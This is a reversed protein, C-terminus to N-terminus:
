KLSKENNQNFITTGATATTQKKMYKSLDDQIKLISKKESESLKQEESIKIMLNLLQSTMGLMTESNILMRREHPNSEIAIDAESRYAPSKKFHVYGIVVLLPLGISAVTLIYLIFSPFIQILFPYNEIALFYTVTLTNIAAFVFAFYTTWGQRFYLWLRFPLTKKM